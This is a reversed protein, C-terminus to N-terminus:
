LLIATGERAVLSGRFLRRAQRSIRAMAKDDHSPDHHFLALQKVNAKRAVTTAVDVTSHGWGKKPKARSRYEHQLYQADHILLDAGRAFEIIDPYGGSQQEIDTAYVVSKHGFWLRYLMIGFRPHAPSKLAKVFLDPSTLPIAKAQRHITPKRGAARFQVSEGGFLSHFEKKGKLEDISVPFLHSHTLQNLSRALGGRTNAPGFINSRAHATLLPEFFCLGMVHDIHTHSLFINATPKGSPAQCLERGLQIIGTGADFIIRHDGAQVEVCSTNGGIGVTATSATPYSGRVGWFRVRLSAKRSTSKGIVQKM